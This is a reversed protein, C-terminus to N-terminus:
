PCHVETYKKILGKASLDNLDRRITDESVNLEISLDTSLVKRSLKIKDLIHHHREEKLM